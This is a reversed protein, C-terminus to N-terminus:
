NGPVLIFSGDEQTQRKYTDHMMYKLPINQRWFYYTHEDESEADWPTNISLLLNDLMEQYDEIDRGEEPQWGIPFEKSPKYFEVSIWLDICGFKRRLKERYYEKTRQVVQKEKMLRELKEVLQVSDDVPECVMYYACITGDGAVSKYFMYTDRFMYIEEEKLMQIHKHNEYAYKATQGAMVLIAAIIFALFIRERSAHKQM